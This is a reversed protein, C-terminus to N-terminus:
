HFSKKQKWKKLSVSSSTSEPELSENFAGITIWVANYFTFFNKTNRLTDPLQYPPTPMYIKAYEICPALMNLRAIWTGM